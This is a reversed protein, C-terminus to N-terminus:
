SDLQLTLSSPNNGRISEKVSFIFHKRVFRAFLEALVTEKRLRSLGHIPARECKTLLGKFYNRCDLTRGDDDSPLGNQSPLSTFRDLARDYADDAITASRIGYEGHHIMRDRQLSLFQALVARKGNSGPFIRRESHLHNLAAAPNDDGVIRQILELLDLDGFNEDPM